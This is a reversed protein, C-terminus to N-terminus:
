RTVSKFFHWKNITLLRVIVSLTILSLLGSPMFKGLYYFRYIFFSDLITLTLIMGYYSLFPLTKLFYLSSLLLTAASLSTLLSSYSGAKLYGIIGGIILLTIYSIIWTYITKM